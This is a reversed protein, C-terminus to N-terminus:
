RKTNMYQHLLLGIRNVFDERRHLPKGKTLESLHFLIAHALEHYFTQEITAKSYGAPPLLLEVEQTDHNIRGVWPSEKARKKSVKVLKVKYTFGYLKFSKPVRIGCKMNLDEM